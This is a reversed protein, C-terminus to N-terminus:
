VQSEEEEYHLIEKGVPAKWTVTGDETNEYYFDGDSSCHEIWKPVEKEVVTDITHSDTGDTVLGLIACIKYL